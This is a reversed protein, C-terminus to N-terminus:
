VYKPGEDDNAQNILPESLFDKYTCHLAVSSFKVNRKRRKSIFMTTVTQIRSFVIM